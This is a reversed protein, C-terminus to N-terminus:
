IHKINKLKRWHWTGDRSWGTPINSIERPGQRTNYGDKVSNLGVLVLVDQPRSYAVFYQRILDDFARDQSTRNPIDLPSCSRLEDEMNCPKGGVRPFRKFEQAVFNQRFDSGVDVIVLPFELGKAQHISMINVRNDPLTELLGEDVEIAGTALPVLINWIAEKISLYNLDPTQEDYHIEGGFTNFIGTQAMTRTVAELYVLSEVDDKLHPIWKVLKYSIEILAIDKKWTKRGLPTRNQWAEVFQHLSLPSTPEPETKIYEQAQKRWSTFRHKAESPLKELSDQVKGQPDICELIL